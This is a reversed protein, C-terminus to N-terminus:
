IPPRRTHWDTAQEYAHAVKLVTAEDFPRGALQLGIPLGSETFGCPLSITPSGTLNFGRTCRPLLNYGPEGTDGVPEMAEGIRVSPIPTTPTLILDVREFLEAVQENLATRARLARIYDTATTLAGSMLRTRVSPDIEDARDRLHEVHVEAAEAALITKAFAVESMLPASVEEVVAGLEELVAAARVVAREVEPDVIDFFYDRHVGVRAGRIDLGITATYDEGGRQVSSRDRPDHGAIANLVLAADEVTRVM